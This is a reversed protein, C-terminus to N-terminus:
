QILGGGYAIPECKNFNDPMGEIHSIMFAVVGDAKLVLWSSNNHTCVWAEQNASRKVINLIALLNKAAWSAGLVNILEYYGGDVKAFADAEEETPSSELLGSKLHKKYATAFAKIKKHAEDIDSIEDSLQKFDVREGRYPLVKEVKPFVGEPTQRGDVNVLEGEHEPLYDVRAIVCSKSNAGYVLGGKCLVSNWCPRNRSYPDKTAKGVVKEWPIQKPYKKDLVPANTSANNSANTTKNM